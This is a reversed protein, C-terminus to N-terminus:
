PVGSSGLAKVLKATTVLQGVHRQTHDAVHILAGGLTTPLSKRGVKREANLDATALARVRDAAQSLASQLRSLLEERTEAGSQEAKMSALQQESLQHGEAYTLLRDISGAIHKIQSAVSMLGFPQKHIDLDSLGDTWRSADDGALELAHLVARGAPPIETHTGRLWPETYPATSATISM